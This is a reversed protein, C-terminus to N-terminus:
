RVDEGGVAGVAAGHAGLQLLRQVPVTDPVGGQLDFWATRGPVSIPM